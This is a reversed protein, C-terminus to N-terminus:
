GVSIRKEVNLGSPHVSSCFQAFVNDEPPELVYWPNSNNVGQIGLAKSWPYTRRVRGLQTILASMVNCPTNRVALTEAEPCESEVLVFRLIALANVPLNNISADVDVTDLRTVRGPALGNRLVIIPDM